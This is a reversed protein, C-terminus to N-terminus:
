AQILEGTGPIRDRNHWVVETEGRSQRRALEKSCNHPKRTDHGNNARCWEVVSAWLVDDVTVPKGPKRTSQATSDVSETSEPDPATTEAPSEAPTETPIPSAAVPPAAPASTEPQAPRAAPTSAVPTSKEAPTRAETDGDPVQLHCYPCREGAVYLQLFETDENWRWHTVPPCNFCEYCGGFPDNEVRVLQTGCFYCHSGREM